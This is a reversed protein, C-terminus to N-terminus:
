AIPFWHLQKVKYFAPVEHRPFRLFKLKLLCEYISEQLYKWNLENFQLTFSLYHDPKIGSSGM